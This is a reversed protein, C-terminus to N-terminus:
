FFDDGPKISNDMNAKISESAFVNTVQLFFFIAYFFLVIFVVNSWNMNKVEDM